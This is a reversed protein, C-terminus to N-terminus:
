SAARSADAVVALLREVSPPKQMVEFAEDLDRAHVQNPDGTVVVIPLLQDRAHLAAMLKRGDMTPMQLDTIVVRPDFRPMMLMARAGNKATAVSYGEDELLETMLDLWDPDDDVVLVRPHEGSMCPSLAYGTGMMSGRMT